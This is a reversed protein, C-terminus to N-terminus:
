FEFDQYNGNYAEVCQNSILINKDQWLEDEVTM